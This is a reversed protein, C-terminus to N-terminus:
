INKDVKEVMQNREVMEDREQNQDLDVLKDNQDLDLDVMKDTEAIQDIELKKDWDVM